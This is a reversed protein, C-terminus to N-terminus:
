RGEVLKVFPEPDNNKEIIVWMINGGEKRKTIHLYVFPPGNTPCRMVQIPARVTVPPTMIFFKSPEITANQKLTVSRGLFVDISTECMKRREEPELIDFNIFSKGDYVNKNKEPANRM